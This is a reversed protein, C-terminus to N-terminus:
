SLRGALERLAGGGAGLEEAARACGVLSERTQERVKTFHVQLYRELDFPVVRPAVRWALGLLPGAVLRSLRPPRVGLRRAAVATAERAADAALRRLGRDRRLRDLRWGAVELAAVQTNLFAGGFALRRDVGRATTARLDGRALAEAIVGARPGEFPLKSLPPTWYVTGPAPLVEGPLPGAYSVISLMGRVIRERPVRAAVYVMDDLGPQLVVFTADGGGAALVELWPGKRLAPSSVCLFIADWRRAAAAEPTTVVDFATFRWPVIREGRRRRRYLDYGARMEEAQAPRALFTV